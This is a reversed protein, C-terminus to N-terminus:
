KQLLVKTAKSLSLDIGRRFDSVTPTIKIDPQIGYGVFETGNPFSNRETCVKFRGGGPLPFSRPEGSSGGTPQGIVKGLSLNKFIATFDEAASFTANGILLVIPNNYKKNTSLKYLKRRQIYYSSNPSGAKVKPIDQRSVWFTGYFPKDVIHSIIHYGQASSGGGNMRNDIILGKTQQILPYISDFKKYFSNNDFSNLTLIGVNNKTIRYDLNPKVKFLNWKLKRSLEFNLIKNSKSKITLKVLSDRHGKFLEYTYTRFDLEHKTSSSIYPKVKNEAYDRIDVGNIKLIEQGKKIGLTLLSDNYVETIIVSNEILEARLPLNKSFKRKVNKPFTVTTHGDKLNACFKKLLLYYEFTNETKDIQKLYEIYKKDWDLPLTEYNVYNTKVESWLKSLGYIKDSRTLNNEDQSLISNSYFILSVIIINRIQHLINRM